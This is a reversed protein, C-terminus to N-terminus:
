LIVEKVSIASISIKHASKFGIFQNFHTPFQLQQFQNISVVLRGIENDFLTSEFVLNPYYFSVFIDFELPPRDHKMCVPIQQLRKALDFRGEMVRLFDIHCEYKKSDIESLEWPFIVSIRPYGNQSPSFFLRLDPNRKEDFEHIIVHYSMIFNNHISLSSWFEGGAYFDLECASKIQNRPNTSIWSLTTASTKFLCDSISRDLKVKLDGDNEYIILENGETDFPMKRQWLNIYADNSCLL